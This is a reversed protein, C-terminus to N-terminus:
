NSNANKTEKDKLMTILEQIYDEWESSVDKLICIHHCEGAVDQAFSGEFVVNGTVMGFWKRQRVTFDYFTLGFEAENHVQLKIDINYDCMRYYEHRHSHYSYNCNIYKCIEDKEYGMNQAIEVISKLLKTEDKDMKKDKLKSTLEM